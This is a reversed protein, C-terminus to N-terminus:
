NESQNATKGEQFYLERREWSENGQGTERTQIEEKPGRESAKDGYSEYHNQKRKRRKEKGSISGEEDGNVGTLNGTEREAEGVSGVGGHVYREIHQKM